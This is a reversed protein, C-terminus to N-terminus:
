NTSGLLKVPELQLTWLFKIESVLLQSVLDDIDARIEEVIGDLRGNV